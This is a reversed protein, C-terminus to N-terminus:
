NWNRHAAAFLNWSAKICVLPFLQSPGSVHFLYVFNYTVRWKPYYEIQQRVGCRLAYGDDMESFYITLWRTLIRVKRLKQTHIMHSVCLFTKPVLLSFQTLCIQPLRNLLNDAAIHGSPMLTTAIDPFSDINIPEKSPVLLWPILSAPATSSMVPQLHQSNLLSPSPLKKAFFSTMFTSQHETKNSTDAALKKQHWEGAKHQAFNKDGGFGVHVM